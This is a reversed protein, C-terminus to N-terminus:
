VTDFVATNTFPENSRALNHMEEDNMALGSQWGSNFEVPSMVSQIGALTEDYTPQFWFPVPSEDVPIRANAAGLCTAARTYQQQAFALRAFEVLSSSIAKPDSDWLNDELCEMRLALSKLFCTRALPYDGAALATEGIGSYAFSMTIKQFRQPQAALAALCDQYLPLARDYQRLRRAADACHFSWPLLTDRLVPELTRAIDLAEIFYRQATAPDDEAM